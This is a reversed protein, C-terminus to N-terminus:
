FVRSASVPPPSFVSPPFVIIDAFNNERIAMRIPTGSEWTVIIGGIKFSIILFACPNGLPKILDMINLFYSSTCDNRSVRGQRQKAGIRVGHRKRGRLHQDIAACARRYSSTGPNGSPQQQTSNGLKRPAGGTIAQESESVVQRIRGAASYQQTPLNFHHLVCTRRCDIQRKREVDNLESKREETSSPKPRM